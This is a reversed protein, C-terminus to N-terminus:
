ASTFISWTCDVYQTVHVNATNSDSISIGDVYFLTYGDSNRACWVELAVAGGSDNTIVLKFVAGDEISTITENLVPEKLMLTTNEAMGTTITNITRATVTEGGIYMIYVSNVSPNSASLDETGNTGDCVHWGNPVDNKTINWLKTEGYSPAPAASVFTQDGRLFKTAVDTGTGLNSAAVLGTSDLGCYGSNAGKNTQQEYGSLAASTIFTSSHVENGHSEPATGTEKYNDIIADIKGFVANAEAATFKGTADSANDVKTAINLKAPKTM